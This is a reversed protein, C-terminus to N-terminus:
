ARRDRQARVNRVSTHLLMPARGHLEELMLVEPLGFEQAWPQPSVIDIKELLERVSPAPITSTM